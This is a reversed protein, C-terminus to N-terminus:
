LGIAKLIQGATYKKNLQIEEEKKEEKKEEKVEEKEKLQLDNMYGQNHDQQKKSRNGRRRSIVIEEDSSESDQEIVIKKKKKKVPKKIVVEEVEEVEEVPKTTPKEKKIEVEQIKNNLADEKAKRKAEYRLKNAEQLKKFNEKQKDTLERKQKKPKQISEDLNEKNEPEVTITETEETIGDTEIQKRKPPM